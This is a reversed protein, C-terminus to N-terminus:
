KQFLNNITSYIDLEYMREDRITHEELDLKMPGSETLFEIFQVKPAIATVLNLRCNVLTIFALLFENVM